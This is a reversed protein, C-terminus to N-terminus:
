RGAKRQLFPHSLYILFKKNLFGGKQKCGSGMRWFNVLIFLFGGLLKWAVLGNPLITLSAVLQSVRLLLEGSGVMVSMNESNM